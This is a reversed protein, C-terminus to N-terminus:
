RGLFPEGPWVPGGDARAEIRGPISRMGSTDTSAVVTTYTFRPIRGLVDRVRNIAALSSATEAKITATYNGSYDEAAGTLDRVRKRTADAQDATIKCRTSGTNSGGTSTQSRCTV